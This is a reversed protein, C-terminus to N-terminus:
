EMEIQRKMKQSLHLFNGMFFWPHDLIEKASPRLKPNKNTLLRVLDRSEESLGAWTEPSTSIEGSLNKRYTMEYSEDHFPAEGILLNYM